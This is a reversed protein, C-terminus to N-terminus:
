LTVLLAEPTVAAESTLNSLKKKIFHGRKKQAEAEETTIDQLWDVLVRKACLM